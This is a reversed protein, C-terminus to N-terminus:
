ITVVIKTHTGKSLGIRRKPNIAVNMAIVRGTLANLWRSISMIRRVVFGSSKMITVTAFGDMNM